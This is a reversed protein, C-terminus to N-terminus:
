RKIGFLNRLREKEELSREATKKKFEVLHKNDRYFETEWKELKKGKARKQRIGVIQSFLSEGIEMYAGLFTWWHLYDLSRVERGIVRNVSPVIVPADHEWDMLTPRKRGDDKIGMDIFDIAQEFAEEWIGGPMDWFDVYLIDLCILQRDKLEYQPDNFFRLIGIIKRFDSQIKWDQGGVNLSTPLEWGNM